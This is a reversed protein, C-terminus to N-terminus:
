NAFTVKGTIDVDQQVFKFNKGLNSQLKNLVYPVTVKNAESYKFYDTISIEHLSVNGKINDGDVGVNM